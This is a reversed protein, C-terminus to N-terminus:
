RGTAYGLMGRANAAAWVRRTEHDLGVASLRGLSWDGSISVDHGRERLGAIVDDGIRSEVVVGAPDWTRPWFSDILATTHLTPADIAQQASYGGVLMRLLAPLQWQDQQDGGPTGLAITEGGGLVLTPTLTTRPREGPRLASPSSDELWTM